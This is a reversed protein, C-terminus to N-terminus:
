ASAGESSRVKLMVTVHRNSEDEPNTEAMPITDRLAIMTVIIFGILVLM